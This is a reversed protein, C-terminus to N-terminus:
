LKMSPSSMIPSAKQSAIPPSKVVEWWFTLNHRSSAGPTRRSRACVVKGSSVQSAPTSIAMPSRNASSCRFTKTVNLNGSSKTSVESFSSTTHNPLSPARPIRVRLGAPESSASRTSSRTNRLWSSLINPRLAPLSCTARCLFRSMDIVANASARTAQALLFKWEARCIKCAAMSLSALEARVWCPSANDTPRRVSRMSHKSSKITSQLFSVLSLEFFSM